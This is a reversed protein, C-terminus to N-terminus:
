IDKVMTSSGMTQSVSEEQPGRLAVSPMEGRAWKGLRRPLPRRWVATIQQLEELSLGRVEEGRLRYVRGPYKWEYGQSQDYTTVELSRRFGNTWRNVFHESPMEFWFM